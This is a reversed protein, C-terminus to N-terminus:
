RDNGQKSLKGALFHWVQRYGVSRMSPLNEHLDERKFLSEVEEIFGCDLMQYFRKAIRDHLAARDM